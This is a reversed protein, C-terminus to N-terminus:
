IIRLDLLKKIEDRRKSNFEGYGSPSNEPSPHMTNSIGILLKTVEDIAPAKHVFGCMRLARYFPIMHTKSQLFTALQRFKNSAEDQEEKSSLGPSTYINAYYIIADAIEGIIRKQEHIPEILFKSTMQGITFILVGGFITFGSTLLIKTLESM